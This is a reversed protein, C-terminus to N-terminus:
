PWGEGNDDLPGQPGSEVGSSNGPVESLEQLLVRAERLDKTDFGETFWNYVPTLVTRAEQQKGQRQWLRALSTAARLEWSKASQQRAIDLATHFCVEAAKSRATLSQVESQLTLEGKLRYLEAEYHGEGTKDAAALAEALLSLGEARQGVKEYGEAVLAPFYTRQLLAGTARYAALGQHLLALGQTEDGQMVLAWGRFLHGQALFLGFGQESTLAILAEAQEQVAQVEGRHQHCWVSYDLAFSLSFPHALEQALPLMARIKQQAQDPYGLYWLAEAQNSLCIVGPDAGMPHQSRRPQRDYLVTVQAMHAQSAGFDGLWLLSSGLALHADLLFAPDPENQALRLFQEGLERAEQLNARLLHFVFVGQLVRFLQSSEGGRECLERARAYAHEM